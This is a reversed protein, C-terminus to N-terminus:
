SMPLPCHLVDLDPPNGDDKETRALLLDSYKYGDTDFRALPNYDRHKNPDLNSSFNTTRLNKYNDFTYLKDIADEQNSQVIKYYISDSSSNINLAKFKQYDAITGNNKLGNMYEQMPTDLNNVYDILEQSISQIFTDIKDQEGSEKLESKINQFDVTSV